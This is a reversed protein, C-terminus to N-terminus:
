LAAYKRRALGEEVQEATAAPACPHEKVYLLTEVSATPSSAAQYLINRDDTDRVIRDVLSAPTRVSRVIPGIVEWGGPAHLFQEVILERTELTTAPNRVALIAHLPDTNGRVMSHVLEADDSYRLLDLIQFPKLTSDTTTM